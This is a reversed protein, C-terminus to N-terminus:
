GPMSRGAPCAQATPPLRRRLQSPLSKAMTKLEFKSKRVRRSYTAQGQGKFSFSCRGSSSSMCPLAPLSVIELTLRQMEGIIDSLINWIGIQNKTSDYLLDLAIILRALLVPLENAM